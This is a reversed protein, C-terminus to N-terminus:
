WGGTLVFPNSVRAELPLTDGEPYAAGGRPRRLQQWVLRYEGAVREVELRPATAGGPRGGFIRMTDTYTAGPAIWVPDSLCLNTISAWAHAWTGGTKKQLEMGLDVRSVTRNGVRTRHRCPGEREQADLTFM